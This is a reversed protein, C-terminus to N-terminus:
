LFEIFIIYHQLRQATEIIAPKDKFLNFRYCVIKAGRVARLTAPFAVLVNNGSACALYRFVASSLYEISHKEFRQVTRENLLFFGCPQM